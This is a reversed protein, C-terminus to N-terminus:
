HSFFPSGAVHNPIITLKNPIPTMEHPSDPESMTIFLPVNRTKRAAKECLIYKMKCFNNNNRYELKSSM